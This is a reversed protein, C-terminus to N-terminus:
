YCLSLKGWIGQKGEMCNQWIEFCLKVNCYSFKFLLLIYMYIVTESHTVKKNKLEDIQVPKFKQSFPDGSNTQKKNKVPFM